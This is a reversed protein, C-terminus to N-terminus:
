CPRWIDCSSCGLGGRRDDDDADDADDDDDDDADADDDDDDDDDCDCSNWCFVIMYRTLFTLCGLFLLWCCLSVGKIRLFLGLFTSFFPFVKPFEHQSHRAIM